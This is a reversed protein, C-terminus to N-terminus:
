SVAVVPHNSYAPDNYYTLDSPQECKGADVCQSYMENTVETQDIWFADLSVIHAPQEDTLGHETGMIFPGAPVYNMTANDKTSVKTDGLGTPPGSASPITLPVTNPTATVPACNTLLAMTIFLTIWFTLPTRLSPYFFSKKNSGINISM